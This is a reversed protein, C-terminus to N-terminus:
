ECCNFGTQIGYLHMSECHPQEVFKNLLELLIDFQKRNGCVDYFIMKIAPDGTTEKM